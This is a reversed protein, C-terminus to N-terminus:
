RGSAGAEDDEDDLHRALYSAVEFFSLGGDGNVDIRQFLDATQSDDLHELGLQRRGALFEGLSLSHDHDFDMANWQCWLHRFHSLCAMLPAFEDSRSILGSRDSDALKYALTLFPRLRSDTGFEPFVEEVLDDVERVTMVGNANKDYRQWLEDLDEAKDGVRQPREQQGGGAEDDDGDGPRSRRRRRRGHGHLHHHLRPANRAAQLESSRKASAEAAAAAFSALEAKHKAPDANVKQQLRDVVRATVLGKREMVRLSESHGQKAQKVVDSLSKSADVHWARQSPPAMKLLGTKRDVFTGPVVPMSALEEVEEEGLLREVADAEPCQRLGWEDVAFGVGRGKKKPALEKIPLKSLLSGHDVSGVEPAESALLNVPRKDTLPAGKLVGAALRDVEKLQAKTKAFARFTPGDLIHGRVHFQSQGGESTILVRADFKGPSWTDVELTLTQPVGAMARGVAGKTFRLEFHDQRM